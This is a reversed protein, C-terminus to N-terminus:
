YLGVNYGVNVIPRKGYPSNANNLVDYFVSTIFSGRGAPFVVGAGLLLSPIIKTDIKFELSPQTPTAFYKQKGWVYNMEPQVQLMIQQMPYIRGFANLGAVGQSTKRVPNGSFDRETFSISQMNIGMGAALYRNFRYGLQPSININSYDGFSLGFNGGIFLKEREFGKKPEEDQALAVFSLFLFGAALLSVKHM